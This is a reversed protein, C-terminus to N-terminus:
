IFNSLSRQIAIIIIIIILAVVFGIEFYYFLLLLRFFYLSLELISVASVPFMQTPARTEAALTVRWEAALDSMSEAARM